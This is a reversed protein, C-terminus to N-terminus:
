VKPEEVPAAPAAVAVAPEKSKKKETKKKPKENDNDKSEKKTTKKKGRNKYSKSIIETVKEITLDEPNRDEPLKYNKGKTKGKLPKSNIYKGHPGDLVIYKNKDDKGQWLTKKNKEEIQKIAEDLDFDEVNNDELKLGVKDTGIKLYYGFKGKNM